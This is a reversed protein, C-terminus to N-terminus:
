TLHRLNRSFMMTSITTMVVGILFLIGIKTLVSPLASGRGLVDYFGQIAWYNISIVAMKQMIEPMFMLPIMSGGIASMILIVITSLSEAQKRSTSVAAIFIGFGSCAFATALILFLLLLPSNGIDLGLVLWSYLLMVVLQITSLVVANIMKGYMIFRPNVPSYLLRKLTGDEREGLITSGMGAVSFLLMMVATGAFSQILAWNVSKKRSLSTIELSGMEDMISGQESNEEAPEFQIAIEEEITGMISPDIDPYRDNLSRVIKKQMTQTGLMKMLNSILAYQVLGAEMERAEDYFLEIPEGAGSQVSDAFGQYFVLMALNNGNMIENKGTEFDIPTLNIEDLEGLKQIIEKSKNTSDLDAIFINLPSQETNNGGLGGFALGFLSILAIPLLFTLLVAKIDRLFIKFDKIAIKFM